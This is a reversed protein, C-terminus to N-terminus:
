ATVEAMAKQVHRKLIEATCEARQIATGAGAPLGAVLPIRGAAQLALYAQQLVVFSVEVKEPIIAPANM